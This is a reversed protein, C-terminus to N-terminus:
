LLGSSRGAVTRRSALRHLRLHGVSVRNSEDSAWLQGIVGVDAPVRVLVVIVVVQSNHVLRRLTVLLLLLRLSWRNPLLSHPSPLLPGPHRTPAIESSYGVVVSVCWVDLIKRSLSRQRRWWSVKLKSLKWCCCVASRILGALRVRDARDVEWDSKSRPVTRADRPLLHRWAVSTARDSILAQCTSRQLIVRNSTNETKGLWRWLSEWDMERIHIQDSKGEFRKGAKNRVVPNRRSDKSNCSNTQKGGTSLCPPKGGGPTWSRRRNRKQLKSFLETNRFAFFRVRAFPLTKIASINEWPQTKEAANKREARHQFALHRKQKAEQMFKMSARVLQCRFRDNIRLSEIRLSFFSTEARRFSNFNKVAFWWGTTATVTVDWFKLQEPVRLSRNDHHKWLSHSPTKIGFIITNKM